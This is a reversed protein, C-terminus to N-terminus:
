PKWIGSKRGVNRDIADGIDFFYDGVGYIAIGTLVVPATFFTAAAAAGM